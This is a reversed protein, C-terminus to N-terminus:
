TTPTDDPRKLGQRAVDDGRLLIFERDFEEGTRYHPYRRKPMQGDASIYRAILVRRWRDSRNPPSRHPILEHHMAAEGARLFYGVERQDVDGPLEDPDIADTFFETSITRHTMAGGRHYGPLVYMTGNDDELDDLAIWISALTGRINWYSLDQHWPVARGTEPPKSLFVTQWVVIDPGIIQEVVDLLRPHSILDLLWRETQHVSFVPDPAEPSIRDRYIRDHERLVGALGADTLVRGVFLYGESDYFRCMRDTLKLDPDIWHGTNMPTEHM